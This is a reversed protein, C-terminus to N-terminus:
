KPTRSKRLAVSAKGGQLYDPTNKLSSQDHADNLQQQFRDCKELTEHTYELTARLKRTPPILNM